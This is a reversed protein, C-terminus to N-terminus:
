HLIGITNYCGTSENIAVLISKSKLFTKNMGKRILSLKLSSCDSIWVVSDFNM